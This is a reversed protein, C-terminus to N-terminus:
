QNKRLKEGSDLVKINEKIRVDLKAKFDKRYGFFFLIEWWTFLPAMILSDFLSDQLAPRRKEILIHGIVVQFGWGLIQSRFFVFPISIKTADHLYISTKETFRTAELFTPVYWLVHVWAYSGASKFTANAHMLMFLLFIDYTGSVLYEGLYLYYLQYGLIAFTGLTLPLNISELFENAVITGFYNLGLILGWQILPVFIIHILQNYPNNHYAGYFSLQSLLEEQRKDDSTQKSM